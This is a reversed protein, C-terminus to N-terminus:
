YCCHSYFSNHCFFGVGFVSDFNFNNKRLTTLQNVVEGNPLIAELGLVLNRMMGYKLVHIGGANTAINGGIQCSGESSISLPFYRDHKNAIEIIQSL